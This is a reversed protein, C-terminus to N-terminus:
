SSRGSSSKTTKSKDTTVVAVDRDLSSAHGGRVPTGSFAAHDWPSGISSIRPQTMERLFDGAIIYYFFM